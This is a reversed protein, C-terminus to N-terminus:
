HLSTPLCIAASIPIDNLLRTGSFNFPVPEIIIGFGITVVSHIRLPCCHSARRRLSTIQPGAFADHDRLQTPHMGSCIAPRECYSPWDKRTLWSIKIGVSVTWIALGFFQRAGDAAGVCSVDVV